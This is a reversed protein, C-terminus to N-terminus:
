DRNDQEVTNHLLRFIDPIASLVRNWSPMFPLEPSLNLFMEGARTISDAFLEVTREERHRDLTLGNM